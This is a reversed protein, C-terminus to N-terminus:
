ASEEPGPPPPFNSFRDPVILRIAERHVQVRAGPSPNAEEGDLQALPLAAASFRLEIQRASVHDTAIRSAPDKLADPLLNGRHDVFAKQVWDAQNRFPVLEVLGDDHSASRDLVWAGAYIRTNKIILDTLGKWEHPEGDAVFTVDFTQDRLFSDMFVRAFAGAYVLHDRYLHRIPGLKHVTDRDRNRALLVRASLGWGASDFFYDQGLVEGDVGLRQMYVADLRTERAGLVVSVNRSLSDEGAALGFSQGQDNATGTPLMGMAVQERVRSVMLAAAVERFTGDGGMAIVVDPTDKELRQALVPITEGDPLTNQLECVVGGAELLAKAKAIRERNMGSQATPNGVLVIRKM